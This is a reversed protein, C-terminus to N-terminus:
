RRYVIAENLANVIGNIFSSDKSKIARVEGSASALAVAFDAKLVVLWIIGVILLFVGFGRIEPSALLFLGVIVLFIPIGRKPEIREFRVSTVGSMAYTQGPVIFRTNTVTVGGNELFTKEAEPTRAPAVAAGSVTVATSSLQQGCKRCFQSDDPLETGCKTCFM